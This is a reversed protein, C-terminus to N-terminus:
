FARSYRLLFATIHSCTFDLVSQQFVTLLLQRRHIANNLKVFISHLVQCIKLCLEYVQSLSNFETLWVAYGTLPQRSQTKALVDLSPFRSHYTKDYNATEKNLAKYEFQRFNRNM